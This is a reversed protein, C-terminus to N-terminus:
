RAPIVRIERPCETLREFGDHTILYTDEVHVAFGQYYISPEVTVVMGPKLITKDGAGIEPGEVAELGVGRGTRHVFSDVLGAKELIERVVLDPGEAPLGPKLVDLAADYSHDVIDYLEQEQATLGRLAANRSFGIRYGYLQPIRCFDLLVIDGEGLMRTSALAHVMDLRENSTLIQHGDNLPHEIPLPNDEHAIVYEAALRTAEARGRQAIEYERVGARIAGLEAQLEAVAMRGSIRMIDIEEPSKIVRLAEVVSSAEEFALQPFTDSLMGFLRASIFGLEAGACGRTLGKEKLVVDLLELGGFVEGPRPAWEVHHRVDRLWTRRSAFNFEIKPVILTPEGSAPVVLAVLRRPSAYEPRTSYGWFGSLYRVHEPKIVVMCALGRRGLGTQVDRIRTQYLAPTLATERTPPSIQLWSEGTM